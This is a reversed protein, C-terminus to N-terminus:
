IFGVYPCLTWHLHMAINYMSFFCIIQIYTYVHVRYSLRYLSQSRVPRDPTSDTQKSCHPPSTTCWPLRELCYHYFHFNYHVSSEIRDKSWSSSAWNVVYTFVDNLRTISFWLIRKRYVYGWFLHTGFERIALHFRGCLPLLFGRWESRHDKAFLIRLIWIRQFYPSMFKWWTVPSIDFTFTSLAPTSIFRTLTDVM